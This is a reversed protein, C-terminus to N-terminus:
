QDYGRELEQIYHGLAATDDRNLCMGGDASVEVALTPATPKAPMTAHHCGAVSAALLGSVLIKRWSM